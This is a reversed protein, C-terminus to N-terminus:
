RHPENRVLMMSATREEGCGVRSPPADWPPPDNSGAFPTRLNEAVLANIRRLTKRDQTQWYLYDSWAETTWALHRPSRSFNLTDTRPL